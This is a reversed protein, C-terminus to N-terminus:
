MFFQNTIYSQKVSLELQHSFYIRSAHSSTPGTQSSPQDLRVRFIDGQTQRLLQVGRAQRLLQVGRAQHLLQGGPMVWISDGRAQGPTWPKAAM